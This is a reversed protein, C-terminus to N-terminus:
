PVSEDKTSGAPRAAELEATGDPLLMLEIEGGRPVGLHRLVEEPLTVRGHEGLTLTPM